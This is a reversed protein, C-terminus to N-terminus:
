YIEFSKFNKIDTKYIEYKKVKALPPGKKALEIIERVKEENGEFHCELSGDELNKAYGKIGLREAHKSLFFRFGVKQVKGYLKMKVAIISNM